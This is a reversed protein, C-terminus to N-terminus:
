PSRNGQFHEAILIGDSGPPIDKSLDNMVEYPSPGGRASAEVLDKAMTEM